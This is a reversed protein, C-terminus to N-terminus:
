RGTFNIKGIRLKYDYFADKSIEALQLQMAVAFKAIMVVNNRLQEDQESNNNLENSL